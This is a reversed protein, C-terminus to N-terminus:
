GSLRKFKLEGDEYFVKVVSPPSFDYLDIEAKEIEGIKFKKKIESYDKTHGLERLSFYVVHRMCPTGMYPVFLRQDYKTGAKSVMKLYVVKKYEFRGFISWAFRLLALSLVSLVICAYWNPWARLAAIGAIISLSALLNSYINM